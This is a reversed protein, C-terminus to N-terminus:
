ETRRARRYPRLTKGPRALGQCHLKGAHAVRPRRHAPATASANGRSRVLRGRHAGAGPTGERHGISDLEPWYAYIFRRGDRRLLGAIASLMDQLNRYSLGQARGLHSLNFASGALYAPAVSFADVGIRESFPVHGFLAAADIGAEALDAGGYRARGPLVALVSGLERFYMHWGTLGHQRPADGTLFTTIATATTPPYVSTIGGLLHSDFCAARPHARLYNLGLGDIVWLLVQRYGAVTEAPLLHLPAYTHAPGDLGTQLSAMLNIISGGHYDPLPM